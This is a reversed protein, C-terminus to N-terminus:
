LIELGPLTQYTVDQSPAPFGSVKKKVTYVTLFHSKEKEGYSPFKEGDCKDPADQPNGGEGVQHHPPCGNGSIGDANRRLDTRL